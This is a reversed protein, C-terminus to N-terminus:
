GSYIWQGNQRPCKFTSPLVQEHHVLLALIHKERHHDKEPVPIVIRPNYKFPATTLTAVLRILVVRLLAPGAAWTVM